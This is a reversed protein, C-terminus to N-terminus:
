KGKAEPKKAAAPAAAGEAKKEGEAGEAAPAAAAGEAGEAAAAVPAEEIIRRPENISAVTFDRKEAPTAGQPLKINSIKIVDGMNYASLDVDIHDPIDTAQCTLEVEWLVVNLVGGEKIGPCIADNLFKVPISVTLKTKPTVRLFDVHLVNDTVPHLQVDRALVLHKDKGVELDCLSTFMHGKKYELNVYKADLIVSLPEKGDGYIVGPIRNERRLARAVGKGARERQEGKLAYNRSSM